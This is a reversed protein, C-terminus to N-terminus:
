AIEIASTGALASVNDLAPLTIIALNGAPDKITAGEDVISLSSTAKYNLDSSAHGSAVSYTFVLNASGSGSVYTAKADTSGTELELTPNGGTVVVAESFAITISVDDGATYTGDPGSVSSVTPRDDDNTVTVVAPVTVSVVPNGNADVIKESETSSQSYTLTVTANNPIAEALSLTVSTGSVAVSSVAKSVSNVSLGFDSGNPSGSVTDDMTLTITTTGANAAYSSITPRVGDVAIAENGGLSDSGAPSDLTLTANTSLNDRITDSNTPLTLSTTAKYDLDTAVHGSLVTYNFTLTDTGSGSAYYAVADTSGTELALQPTGQVNVVEDFAIQIPIVEGIGKTVAGSSTDLTSTVGTINPASVDNTVTISQGTTVDVVANGNADKLQKSAESNQAYTVSIDAGNVIMNTLTLAISNGDSAVTAATVTNTVGAASTVTFDTADPTGSAISEGSAMTITVTTTGANAAYSAFTPRVGDIVIDEATALSGSGDLADLTLTANTSLNDRITDANTPLTLSTTAIYNLDTAM